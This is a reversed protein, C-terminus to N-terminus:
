QPKAEAWIEGWKIQCESISLGAEKLERAFEDQLYEIYHTEDLRWEVGLEKKLPVRWDREFLPVRLLIRRAGSSHMAKRLFQPRDPLHELVNSMVVTDYQGSPLDVLADGVIYDVHKHAYRSRAAAINRPELDIGTVIAGARSAMSYSLAGNGCGIDLVKEQSRLRDVFFDHYGIHRHKSHLGKGYAISQEGQHAYLFADLRFLFRLAEDPELMAVRAAIADKLTQEFEATTSETRLSYVSRNRPWMRRIIKSVVSRPLNAM